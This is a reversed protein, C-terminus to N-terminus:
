EVVTVLVPAVFADLHTAVRFQRQLFQPVVVGLPSVIVEDAEVRRVKCAVLIYTTGPHHHRQIWASGHVRTEVAERQVYEVAGFPFVV